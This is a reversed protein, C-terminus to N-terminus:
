GDETSRIGLTCRLREYLKGFTAVRQFVREYFYNQPYPYIRRNRFLVGMTAEIALIAPLALLGLTHRLTMRHVGNSFTLYGDRGQAFRHHLQWTYRMKEPRVLHYIYLRPEYYIHADPKDRRVRRMFETEEGYGVQNGQMGLGPDFGGVQELLSRRIFLNGGCLYEDTSTLARADGGLSFAGYEDKFWKPKPVGYSPYFPGGVLDPSLLHIVEAAIGLWEPPSIGDDDLFGIYEGCAERWGRNRAYSIGLSEEYFYRLNPKHKIFDEIVERTNDTSLNDVVIVEYQEPSLTQDYVSDLAQALLKARNHTYICVSLLLTM